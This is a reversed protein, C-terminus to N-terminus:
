KASGDEKEKPKEQSTPGAFLEAPRKIRYAKHPEHLTGEETVHDREIFEEVVVPQMRKRVFEPLSAEPIVLFDKGVQTVGLERAKLDTSRKELSSSSDTLYSIVGGALAGSLGFVLTNLNRSEGNPSFLAGGGAGAAAGMGIGALIRNRGNLTACGTLVFSLAIWFIPRM